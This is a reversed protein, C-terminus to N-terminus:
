SRRCWTGGCPIDQAGPASLLAQFRPVLTVIRPDGCLLWLNSPLNPNYGEKNPNVLFSAEKTLNISKKTVAGPSRPAPSGVEIEIDFVCTRMDKDHAALIMGCITRAYRGESGQVNNDRLEACNVTGAIYAKQPNTHQNGINTMIVQSLNAQEDMDVVIIEKEPNLAAYTVASHFCLTTKGVGGKNTWFIYSEDDELKPM